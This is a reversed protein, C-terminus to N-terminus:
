YINDILHPMSHFLRLDTNIAHCHELFILINVHLIYILFALSFILIYLFFSYQLNLASFIQLFVFFNISFIPLL